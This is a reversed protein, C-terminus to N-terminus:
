VVQDWSIEYAAQFMSLSSKYLHGEFVLDM